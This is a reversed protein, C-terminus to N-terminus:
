IGGQALSGTKVTFLGIRIPKNQAIAPLPLAAATTGAMFARRRLRTPM